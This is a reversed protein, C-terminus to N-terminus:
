NGAYSYTVFYLKIDKVSRSFRSLGDNPDNLLTKGPIILKWKSNWVSRGILRKNTYQSPQLSGNAGYISTSFADTTSVPRFAQNKRVSFLPETLSDAATYFPSSSFGSAGINFPLPITLDDVNWSRIASTDGLPPSRMSDAGVAILYVYPTAALANPDFTPDRPSSGGATNGPTPNDMGIYSDFDVGAAFIKTAFSSPSYNHDGPGLQQGFLNLGDSIVTSFTLIIGPVPQGSSNDLQLCSRKVDPDALLDAVQSRQLVDKWNSDGDGGALIRYNEKRLSVTTGYGDPNNFGLRGKLVDWDAKMEALASSLGPDGTDSGAYQPQGNQVVGLARSSIIRNLFSKGQDTNLLGTEYDYAQAALFAYKAALDFLTKYRELKENQFIRFAAARTRYGQVLAAAHQRFTLREQLIRNGKAVLAQYARQADDLNRLTENITFLDGEINLLENGLSLIGNKTDQDLQSNAITKSDELIQNQKEATQAAAVSMAIVDSAVVAEKAVTLGIVAPTEAAKVADSAIALGAILLNPVFGDMLSIVDDIGGAVATLTRDAIEYNKQLNNIAIELDLGGNALTTINTEFLMQAQFAAYAKDLAQKDYTEFVVVKRLKNQAAILESIAQQIRGPSERRSMWDAPKDFFGNPGINFPISLPADNTSRPDTWSVIGLDTVMTAAWNTPTNQVDVYWTNTVTPDPIVANFNNTDPNEVCTYHILDPGTYDQSYTKGPGVDDPYPTGYLEILQNIYAPEQNTTAAQLNALSDEESRMLQTVNQADNFAIVANNLTGM